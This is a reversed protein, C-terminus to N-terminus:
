PSVKLCLSAHGGDHHAAPMEMLVACDSRALTARHRTPREAKAPTNKNSRRVNLSPFPNRCTALLVVRRRVLSLAPESSILRAWFFPALRLLKTAQQSFRREVGGVYPPSIANQCKPDIPGAQTM